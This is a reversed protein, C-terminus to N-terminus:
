AAQPQLEQAAAVPLSYHHAQQTPHLLEDAPYNEAKTNLTVLPPHQIWVIIQKALLPQTSVSSQSKAHTQKPSPTPFLPPTPRYSVLAALKLLLHQM